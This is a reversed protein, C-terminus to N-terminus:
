VNDQTVSVGHTLQVFEHLATQGCIVKVHM